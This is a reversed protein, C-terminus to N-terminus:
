VRKRRSFGLGLVGIGILAITGPEPLGTERQLKRILVTQFESFNNALLSFSGPGSAFNPATGTGIGLANVVDANNAVAWASTGVTTALGAPDVGTNWGGDTSVDIISKDATGTLTGEANTIGCSICTTNGNGSQSLSTFFNALATRDAVSSITTMARVVSSSQAFRVVSIAITGDTPIVANIANSYGTVQTSWESSSISGSADLVLSLEIPLAAANSGYILMGFTFTALLCKGRLKNLM